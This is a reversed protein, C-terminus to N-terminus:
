ENTGLGTWECEDFINTDWYIFVFYIKNSENSKYKTKLNVM